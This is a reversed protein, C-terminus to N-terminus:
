KMWILQSFWCVAPLVFQRLCSSTSFFFCGVCLFIQGREVSFFFALDDRACFVFILLVLLVLNVKCFNTLKRVVVKKLCECSFCLSLRFLREILGFIAFSFSKSSTLVLFLLQFLLQFIVQDAFCVRWFSEVRRPSRGRRRRQVGSLALDDFVGPPQNPNVFPFGLLARLRTFSFIKWLFHPKSINTPPNQKVLLFIFCGEDYFTSFHPGRWSSGSGHTEAVEVPSFSYFCSILTPLPGLDQLDELFSGHLIYPYCCYVLIVPM